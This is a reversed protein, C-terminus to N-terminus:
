SCVARKAAAMLERITTAGSLVVDIRCARSNM